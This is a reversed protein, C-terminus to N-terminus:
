VLWMHFSPHSKCIGGIMLFCVQISFFITLSILKVTYSRNLTGKILNWEGTLYACLNRSFIYILGRGAGGEQSSFYLLHGLDFLCM